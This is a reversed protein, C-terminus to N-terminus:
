ITIVPGASCTNVPSHGPTRHTRLAPTHRAVARSRRLRRVVADHDLHLRDVLAKELDRRVHRTGKACPFAIQPIEDTRAHRAALEIDIDAKLIATLFAIGNMDVLAKGAGIVRREATHRM